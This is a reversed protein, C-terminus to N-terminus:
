DEEYYQCDSPVTEGLDPKFPCHEKHMCINYNSKTETASASDETSNTKIIMPAFNSNAIIKEYAYVKAELEAISKDREIDLKQNGLWTYVAGAVAAREEACSSSYKSVITNTSYKGDYAKYRYEADCIMDILEEANYM